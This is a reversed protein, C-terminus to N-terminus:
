VYFLAIETLKVADFSELSAQGRARGCARSQRSVFSVFQLPELPVQTEDRAVTPAGGRQSSRREVSEGRLCM